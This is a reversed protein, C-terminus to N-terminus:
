ALAHCDSEAVKLRCYGLEQFWRSCSDISQKFNKLLYNSNKSNGTTQSNFFITCWQDLHFFLVKSNPFTFGVELRSFHIWKHSKALWRAEKDLSEKNKFRSSNSESAECICSPCFENCLTLVPRKFQYSTSCHWINHLQCDMSIWIIKSTPNIHCVRQVGTIHFQDPHLGIPSLSSNSHLAPSEYEALM